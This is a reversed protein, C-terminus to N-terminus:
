AYQQHRGRHSVSPRGAHPQQHYVLSMVNAAILVGLGAVTGILTQAGFMIGLGAIDLGGTVYDLLDPNQTQAKM